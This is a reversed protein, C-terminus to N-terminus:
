DDDEAVPMGTVVPTEPAHLDVTIPEVEAHPDISDQELLAALVRSKLDPQTTAGWKVSMTGIKFQVAGDALVRLRAVDGRLDDPLAALLDLVGALNEPETGDEPIRVDPLKKPASDASDYVIGQADAVRAGERGQHVVIAPERPTVELTIADPWSRKVEVEEVRLDALVRETIGGGDVRALPRGTPIAAADVVASALEGETGQVVVEQVVFARSYGFLFVLGGVLALVLGVVAAAKWPRRRVQAARQQFKRHPKVPERRRGGNRQWLM